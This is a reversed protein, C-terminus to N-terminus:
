RKPLRGGSAICKKLTKYSVFTKTRNYYTPGTAHCIGSNSKKVTGARNAPQAAAPARHCHYDGTKKNNHCGQANLGGGHAFSLASLFCLVVAALVGAFHKNMADVRIALRQM